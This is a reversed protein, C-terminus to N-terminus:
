TLNIGRAVGTSRLACGNPGYFSHMPAESVSATRRSRGPRRARAGPAPGRHPSPTSRRAPCSSPDTPSAFSVARSAASRAASSQWRPSHRPSRATSSSPRSTSTVSRWARSTTSSGRRASGRLEVAHAYYSTDLWDPGTDARRRLRRRGDRGQRRARRRDRPRRRRPRVTTASWSRGTVSPPTRTALPAPQLACEHRRRNQRPTAARPPPTTHCDDAAARDVSNTGSGIDPRAPSCKRGQSRAVLLDCARARRPAHGALRAAVMRRDRQELGPKRISESAPRRQSRRRGVNCASPASSIRAASAARLGSWPPFPGYHSGPRLRRQALCRARRSDRQRHASIGM